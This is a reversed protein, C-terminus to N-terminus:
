EFETGNKRLLYSESVIKGIKRGNTIPSRAEKIPRVVLGERIQDVDALETGGEALALLAQEDYPGEYLVPATLVPQDLIRESLMKENVERVVRDYEEPRLFVQVGDGYDVAIDFLVFGPAGRHVDTGYALDQVGAGYVEGFLAVTPAGAVISVNDAFTELSYANAARWYLNNPDREIALGKGGYGKSSVAVEGSDQFTLMFCTGHIKETAVVPEGAEFMEPYRKINEIEVWRLLRDPAYVQGAMSTPIPPVWKEIGLYEAFDTYTPPDVEDLVPGDWNWNPDERRLADSLKQPRCVIGQSLEGRLRAARVRNKDKGALFGGVGLEEILPQPLVAQEPIYLAWDGTQYAGKAVVACYLGVQALELRDANPHPHITLRAISVNLTSM